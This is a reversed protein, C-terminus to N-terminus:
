KEGVVADFYTGVNLGSWIFSMQANGSPDPTLAVSTNSVQITRDDIIDTITTGAPFARGASIKMGLAVNDSNSVTVKNTGTTWSVQRDVYDWNRAALKSLRVAYDFADITAELEGSIYDLVGANFYKEVAFLTKQNGGFRLDHELADLM